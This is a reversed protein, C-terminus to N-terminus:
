KSFKIAIMSLGPAYPEYDIIEARSPNVAGMVVYLPRLGGEPQANFWEKTDELKTLLRLEGNEIINILLEDFMSKKPKLNFYYLDLRHTPSGTGIIVARRGMERVAKAIAEGVRLHTEVSDNTISVTVAKVGNSFMFMLPIWAGHDLGWSKDEEIRLGLGKGVNVIERALEIDNEAEYCFKYVEDPFGYYDQICRLKEQIEVLFKGKFNFFHPSIIIIVEPNVERRIEEGINRWVDKWKSKEVLIM